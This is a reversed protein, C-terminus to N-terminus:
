NTVGIGFMGSAIRHIIQLRKFYYDFTQQKLEIGDAAEWATRAENARQVAMQMLLKELTETAHPENM